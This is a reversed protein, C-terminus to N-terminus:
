LHTGVVCELIGHTIIDCTPGLLVNLASFVVHPGYLIRFALFLVNLSVMLLLIVHPCYCCIVIFGVMRIVDCTALLLGHRILIVVELIGHSIIDCTPLLLLNLASLIVQPFCFVM